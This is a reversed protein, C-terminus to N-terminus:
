VVSLSSAWSPLVLLDEYSAGLPSIGQIHYGSITDAPRASIKRGLGDLRLSHREKYLCYQFFPM